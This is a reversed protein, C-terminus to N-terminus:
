WRFRRRGGTRRRSPRPRGPAPTSRQGRSSRLAARLGVGTALSNLFLGVIILSLLAEVTVLLRAASTVPLIDGSASSTAVGASLYLMRLFHGKVGIPFGRYGEGFGVIQSYLDASMGLVPAPLAALECTSPLLEQLNPGSPVGTLLSPAPDDARMLFYVTGDIIFKGTLPVNVTKRLYTQIKAGSSDVEFYLPAFLQFSFEEPFNRVSLSHAELSQLDLAWGRIRIQDSKYHQGMTMRVRDGLALLLKNADHNLESFEYQSTAHFFSRGPLAYYLWSFVLIMVLYLIIFFVSSAHGLRSITRGAVAGIAALSRPAFFAM